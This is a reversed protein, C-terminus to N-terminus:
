GCGSGGSVARAEGGGVGAFIGFAEELLVLLRDFLEVFKAPWFVLFRPLVPKNPLPEEEEEGAFDLEFAFTFRLGEASCGM